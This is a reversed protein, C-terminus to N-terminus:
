QFGAFLEGEHHGFSALKDLAVQFQDVAGELQGRFLEVTGWLVLTMGFSIHDGLKGALTDCESLRQEAAAVDGQLLSVWAAVWLAACRGSPSSSGLGLALDLWRRGESLFGDACWHYRLATVMALARETNGTSVCWDLALELNGRDARLKALGAEQGPGTWDRAVQVAMAEFYEQHRNRLESVAEPSALRELGYEKVTMLMRFRGRGKGEVTQLISQAVLHDMLDLVQGAPLGDGSCVQEAALRDFEGAFVSLRAWLLREEPTCLDFSWDILARLTRQRPLASRNGGTLLGFRDELREVLENLQMSRMRSVALEIALPIGELRACLQAVDKGNADNVVFGHKIARARDVLLNVSSFGSLVESTFETEPEPIPLPALPYVHEGAIDLVQRSTTIIQVHPCNRLLSGIVGACASLLHECNDFVLLLQRRAIYEILRDLTRRNSPNPVGLATAVAHELLEPERVVALDILWTGDRFKSNHEEAIEVAFRSKGVGGVGTLTVLRASGLLERVETLENRRGVFSTVANPLNGRSESSIEDM